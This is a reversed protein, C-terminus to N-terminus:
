KPNQFKLMEQKLCNFVNSCYKKDEIQDFCQVIVDKFLLFKDLALIIHINKKIYVEMQPNKPVVFKKKIRNYFVGILAGLIILSLTQDRDEEDQKKLEEIRGTCHAILCNFATKVSRFGYQPFDDMCRIGKFRYRLTNKYQYEIMLANKGFYISIIKNAEFLDNIKYYFSNLSTIPPPVLSIENMNVLILM